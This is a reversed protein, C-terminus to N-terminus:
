ILHHLNKDIAIFIFKVGYKPYVYIIADNCRQIRIVNIVYDSVELGVKFDDFTHHVIEDSKLNFSIRDNTGDKDM